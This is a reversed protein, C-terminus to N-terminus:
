AGIRTRDLLLGDCTALQQAILIRAHRARRPDAGFRAADLLRAAANKQAIRQSLLHRNMSATAATDGTLADLMAAFLDRRMRIAEVNIGVLWADELAATYRGRCAALAVAEASPPSDAAAPLPPALCLLCLAFLTGTGNM